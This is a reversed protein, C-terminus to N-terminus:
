AGVALIERAIRSAAGPEGFLPRVLALEAKMKGRRDPSLLLDRTALYVEEVRPQSFEPVVHRDLLINPLSFYKLRVMLRAAAFSLSSLRYVVVMPVGLLAAELTVTGSAALLLDAAAMRNYRERSAASRERGSDSSRLEKVKLGPVDQQLREAVELMLPLHRQIEAPRSGPLLILGPALPRPDPTPCSSSQQNCIVSQLNCISEDESERGEQREKDRPPQIGSGREDANMQPKLLDVLPNGLFVANVGLKRFFPEEFPLLCIVKDTAARFKKARWRGWAWLQPPSLYVVRIGLDHAFRALGLNVGSFSVPVFVDPKVERLAAEVRRTFAQMRGWATLGEWFGFVGLGSTDQAREVGASRMETGGIGLMRVSPDLERIARAVLGAYLDGSAEGALFFITKM